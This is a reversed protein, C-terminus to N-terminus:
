GIGMKGNSIQFKPNIQCKINTIQGAFPIGGHPLIKFANEHELTGINEHELTKM